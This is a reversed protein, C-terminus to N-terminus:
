LLLADHATSFCDCVRKFTQLSDSIILEGFGIKELLTNYATAFADGGGTAECGPPPSADREREFLSLAARHFHVM